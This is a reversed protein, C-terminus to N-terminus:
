RARRRYIVFTPGSSAVEYQTMWGALDDFEGIALIPNLPGLGDVIYAPASARLENRNVTGVASLTPRPDTLHRDALVGTLPQSDLFRTGAPMGSFVFVDPRYGWVLLTSGSEAHERLWEGAARSDDMLANDRSAEPRFVVPGFRFIPILALALVAWRRRSSMVCLGRAGLVAVPPLLLFYYRPFFRFGAILGALSLGAWAVLRWDPSRGIYRMAGIVLAAHFGAWNATRRLGETLPNVVFTDRSYQAGWVWVQRWYEERPLTWVSVSSVGAWGLLLWPTQRGTWLACAPLVLLGKSNALLAIAAVVGSAVPRGSVALLIAALHAPLMLLDPAVAMTASPIYFTLSLAILSGGLVGERSTWLRRCLLFTLVSSLLVLSAGVLRLGVGPRAGLAAYFWAYLPPKDFWIDSYLSKGRLVEAGAALGYAEEIWVLDRHALRALVVVAALVLL